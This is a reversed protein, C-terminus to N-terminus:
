SGSTNRSRIPYARQWTSFIENLPIFRFKSSVGCESWSENGTEAIHPLDLRMYFYFRDVVSFLTPWRHLLSATNVCACM